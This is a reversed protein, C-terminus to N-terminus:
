IFISEYEEDKKSAHPDTSLIDKTIGSSFSISLVKEKLTKAKRKIKIYMFIFIIIIIIIIGILGLVLFLLYKLKKKRLQKELNIPLSYVLYDENFFTDKLIIHVKIQLVYKYNDRSINKFSINFKNKDDQILIEDKYSPKSSLFALSDIKENNIINEKKFLFSYIKYYCKKFATLNQNARIINNFEFQIFLADNSDEKSYIKFSKDFIYNMELSAESYYYRLIYNPNLKNKIRKITIIFTNNCKDIRYKRIGTRKDIIENMNITKNNDCIINELKIEEYNPSLEIIIQDGNREKENIQVLYKNEEIFLDFDGTIYQNIPLIYEPANYSEKSEKKYLTMLQLMDNSYLYNIKNDIKILIYKDYIYTENIKLLSIKSITDYHSEYKYNLQAIYEGKMIREIYEYEVIYAEINYNINKTENTNYNLERFIIDIYNQSNKLYYYIPFQKNIILENIVEGKVLEEVGNNKMIYKLKLYFILIKSTNFSINNVKNLTIFFPKAKFNRNPYM